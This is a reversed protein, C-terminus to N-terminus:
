EGFNEARYLLNGYVDGAKPTTAAAVVKAVIIRDDDNDVAISDLFTILNARAIGGAQAVDDATIFNSSAVIDDEDDNLIGVTLTIAPTASSDELDDTGLLFDVPMCGAPLIALGILDAAALTDLASYKGASVMVECASHPAASPRGDKVNESKLYSM